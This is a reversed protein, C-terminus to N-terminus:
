RHNPHKKCYAPWTVMDWDGSCQTHGYHNAEEKTVFKRGNALLRGTNPSILVWLM